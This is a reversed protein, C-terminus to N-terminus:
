RAEGWSRLSMWTKRDLRFREAAVSANLAMIHVMDSGQFQFGSKQLVRRSGTNTVRCAANIHAVDTSKFGLDVLAHVAETAYGRGWHPMGIWYGLELAGPDDGRLACCGIFTGTEGLTVAYVSNGNERAQSKRVFDAADAHAYPHPMRSVMSAIAPNNALLTIADIDETHPARLVLRETILVPCDLRLRHESPPRPRERPEVEQIM